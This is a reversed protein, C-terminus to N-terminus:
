KILELKFPLYVQKRTVRWGNKNKNSLYPDDNKNRLIGRVFDYKRLTGGCDLGNLQRIVEIM